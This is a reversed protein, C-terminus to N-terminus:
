YGGNGGGGGDGGMVYILAFVVLALVMAGVLWSVYRRAVPRRM